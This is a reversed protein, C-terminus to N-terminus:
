IIGFVTMDLHGGITQPLSTFNSTFTVYLIGNGPYAITTYSPSAATIVGYVAGYLPVPVESSIIANGGVQYGVVVISSAGGPTAGSGSGEVWNGTGATLPTNNLIVGVMKYRSLASVDLTAVIQGAGASLGTATLPQVFNLPAVAPSVTFRNASMQVPAVAGGGAVVQLGTAGDKALSLSVGDYTVVASSGPTADAFAIGRQTGDAQAAVTLNPVTVMGTAPAVTIATTGANRVYLQNGDFVMDATPVATASDWTLGRLTGLPRGGVRFDGGTSVTGVTAVTGEVLLNGDVTANGDGDTPVYLPVGNATQTQTSPLTPM